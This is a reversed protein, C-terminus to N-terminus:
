FAYRLAFQIERQGYKTNVKGFTANRPNVDVTITSSTGWNPHNIWNFAEFRFWISQGETM